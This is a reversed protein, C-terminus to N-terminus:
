NCYGYLKNKLNPLNKLEKEWVILTDYGLKKFLFIRKEIKEKTDNRHWYDGFLEIIKKEKLNVIDPIKGEIIIQEARTNLLFNQNIEKIIEFLKLETKNPKIGNSKIWKKVAEPNAMPNNKGASLKKEIRTKSAKQYIKKKLEPDKSVKERFDKFIKRTGESCKGYNHNKEGLASNSMKKKTKDSHFHLGKTNRRRLPINNRLLHNRTKKYGWGIKKAINLISKKGDLYMLIIEDM